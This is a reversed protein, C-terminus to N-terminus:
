NIEELREQEDFEFIAMFVSPNGLAAALPPIPKQFIWILTDDERSRQVSLRGGSQAMVKAVAEPTSGAPLLSRLAKVAESHTSFYEFAFPLRRDSFNDGNFSLQVAFGSISVGDRTKTGWVRHEDDHIIAFDYTNIFNDDINCEIRFDYMTLRGYWPWKQTISGHLRVGKLSRIYTLLLGIDAGASFAAELRPKWKEYDSVTLSCFDPQGPELVEGDDGAQTRGADSAKPTEPIMLCGVALLGILGLFARLRGSTAPVMPMGSNM